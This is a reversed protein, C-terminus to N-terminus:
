INRTIVVILSGLDLLLYLTTLLSLRDIINFASDVFKDTTASFYLPLAVALFAIALCTGYLYWLPHTRQYLFQLLAAPLSWNMLFYLQNLIAAAAVVFIMSSLAVLRKKEDWQRPLLFGLALAILFVFISEVFAVLLGYAGVGIADWSNNREAVWSFDQLVLLIAWVHIPFASTLFLMWLNQKSLKFINM